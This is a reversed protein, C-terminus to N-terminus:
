VGINWFLVPHEVQCLNRSLWSWAKMDYYPSTPFPCNNTGLITYYDYEPEIIKLFDWNIAEPFALQKMRQMQKAPSMGCSVGVVKVNTKVAGLHIGTAITGTGTIVVITKIEINERELEALTLITEQAIALVTDKCVLGLPLMLYGEQEAAKKFTHFCVATRGAKLPYLRAGLQKAIKQSASPEKGVLQPFGVMCEMGLERCIFAIGQGAKSVRTDFVAVKSIGKSEKLNRLMPFAGRLKALPPAAPQYEAMFLDDRKVFITYENLVFRQVPTTSKANKNASANEKETNTTKM